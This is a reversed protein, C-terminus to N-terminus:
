NCAIKFSYASAHEIRRRLSASHANQYTFLAGMDGNFQFNITFSPVGIRIIVTGSPVGALASMDATQESGGNLLYRGTGSGVPATVAHINWDDNRTINMAASVNSSSQFVPTDNYVFQFRRNGAATNEAVGASAIFTANNFANSNSGSRKCIAYLSYETGTTFNAQYHDGGDFRLIGNGGQISSKYTPRAGATAQTANRGNGSRDSWTQVTTGDSVDHIFRADLALSAGAAKHSFHRHRARM